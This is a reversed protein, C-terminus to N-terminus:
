MGLQDTQDSKGCDIYLRTCRESGYQWDRNNCVRRNYYWLSDFFKGRYLGKKVIIDSVKWDNSFAWSYMSNTIDYVNRFFTM